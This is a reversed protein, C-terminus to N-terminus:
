RDQAAPTYRSAGRKMELMMMLAAIATRAIPTLTLVSGSTVTPTPKPM